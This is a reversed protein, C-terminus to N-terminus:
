SRMRSKAAVNPSASSARPANSRASALSFGSFSLRPPSEAICAIRAISNERMLGPNKMDNPAQTPSAPPAIMALPVVACFFRQASGIRTMSLIPAQPM